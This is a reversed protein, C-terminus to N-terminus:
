QQILIETSDVLGYSGSTIIKEGLQLNGSKIEVISDNQLGVTVPIKIALSNNLVKMVWFEKQLEDTQLAALPVSLANEMQKYPFRIIVNLNEPLSQLPLRIFYSQSQSAADVTPLAGTVTTRFTKGDPLTIECAKGTNVYPHYEFPVSIVIVLSSPETVTALIDGEAVYDGQMISVTSLIGTANSTVSLPKSFKALSSDLKSVEKLANQEKTQINCFINGLSVADSQKFLLSTIYGTANARINGKKQFLTVGNLTLYETLTERKVVDASVSIKEAVAEAEAQQKNGCSYFLLLLIAASFIKFENNKEQKM